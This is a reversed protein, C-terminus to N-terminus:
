PQAPGARVPALRAFSFRKPLLGQSTGAPSPLLAEAFAARMKLVASVGGTRGLM